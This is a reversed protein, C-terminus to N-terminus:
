RAPPDLAFNLLGALRQGALRLRAEVQGRHAEFYRADLVHGPPYIGGDRV